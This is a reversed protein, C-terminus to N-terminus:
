PLIALIQGAPQQCVFKGTFSIPPLKFNQYDQFGVVVIDSEKASKHDERSGAFWLAFGDVSAAALLSCVVVVVACDRALSANEISAAAEEYEEM